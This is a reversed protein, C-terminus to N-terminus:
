KFFAHCGGCANRVRLASIKIDAAKKTVAARALALGNVHTDHAYEHWLKVAKADANKPAGKADVIAGMAAITYGMEEIPAPNKLVAFPVNTSLDRLMAEIGDKTPNKGATAGVGVGGKDRTRFMAMLETTKDISKGTKHALETAAKTDGKNKDAKSFQDAIDRVTKRLDGGPQASLSAAILSVSGALVAFLISARLNTM